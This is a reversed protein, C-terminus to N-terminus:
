YIHGQKHDTVKACTLVYISYGRPDYFALAIVVMGRPDIVEKRNKLVKGHSVAQIERQLNEICADEDPMVQQYKTKTGPIDTGQHTVVNDEHLFLITTEAEATPIYAWLIFLITYGLVHKM